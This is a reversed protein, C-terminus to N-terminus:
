QKIFKQVKNGVKLFYIGSNLESIDIKHQFESEFIKNGLSNYIIINSLKDNNGIHVDIFNNAPNPFINIGNSENDEVSLFILARQWYHFDRMNPVQSNFAIEVARFDQYDEFTIRLVPNDFIVSDPEEFDLGLFYIKGFQSELDQFASILEPKSSSIDKVEKRDIPKLGTDFPYYNEEFQLYYYHKAFWKGFTPSGLCSDAKVSDPNVAGAWYGSVGGPGDEIWVSDEWILKLCSDPTSASAFNASCILAVCILLFKKM